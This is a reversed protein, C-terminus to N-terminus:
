PVLNVGILNVAYFLVFMMHRQLLLLFSGNQSLAWLLYRLNSKQNSVVKIKQHEVQFVTLYFNM